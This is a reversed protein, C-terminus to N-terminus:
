TGSYPTPVTLITLLSGQLVITYLAPQDKLHEIPLNGPERLGVLTAIPRGLEWNESPVVHWPDGVRPAFSICLRHM